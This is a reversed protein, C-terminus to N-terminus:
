GKADQTPLDVRQAQLTTTLCESIDLKDVRLSWARMGLGVVGVVVAVALWEMERRGRALAVVVTVAVVIAAMTLLGFWAVPDLGFHGSIITGGAGAERSLTGYFHPALGSGSFGGREKALRFSVTGDTTRGRHFVFGRASELRGICEDVSLRTRFLVANHARNGLWGAFAPLMLGGTLVGGSLVVTLLLAVGGLWVGFTIRNWKLTVSYAGAGEVSPWALRTRYEDRCYDEYAATRSRGCPSWGRATLIGGYFEFAGQTTVNGTFAAGVSALRPKHARVVVRREVGAPAGLADLEARLMAEHDRAAVSTRAVDVVVISLASALLIAAAIRIAYSRM